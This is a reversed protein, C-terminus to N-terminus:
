ELRAGSAKVVAAWRKVESSVFAGFQPPTLKGFEAGNSAWITKLEDSNAAKRL